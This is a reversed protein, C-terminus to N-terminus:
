PCQARHELAAKKALYAELTLRGARFAGTLNRLEVESECVV